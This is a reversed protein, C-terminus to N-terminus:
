LSYLSLGPFFTFTVDLGKLPYLPLTSDLFVKV